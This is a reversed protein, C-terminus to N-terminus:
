DVFRAILRVFFYAVYGYILSSLMILFEAMGLTYYFSGPKSMFWSPNIIFIPYDIYYYVFMIGPYKTAFTRWEYGFEQFNNILWIFNESFAPVFGAALVVNAVVFHVIIIVDLVISYKKKYYSASSLFLGM